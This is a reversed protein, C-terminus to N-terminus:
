TGSSRREVKPLLVHATSHRPDNDAGSFYRPQCGARSRLPRRGRQELKRMHPRATDALCHRQLATRRDQSEYLTNRATRISCRSTKHRLNAQSPRRRNRRHARTSEWPNHEVVQKRLFHQIGHHACRAGAHDFVMFRTSTTGQCGRGTHTM